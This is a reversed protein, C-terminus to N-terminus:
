LKTKVTNETKADNDKPSKDTQIQKTRDRNQGTLDEQPAWAPKM